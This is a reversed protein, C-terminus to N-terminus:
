SERRGTVMEAQRLAPVRAKVDLIGAIVAHARRPPIGRAFGQLGSWTYRPEAAGYTV